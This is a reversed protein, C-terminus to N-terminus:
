NGAGIPITLSVSGAPGVPTWGIRYEQKKMKLKNSFYWTGAAGAGGILLCPPWLAMSRVLRSRYEGAMDTASQYKRYNVVTGAIFYTGATLGAAAAVLSWKRAQMTPGLVRRINFMDAHVSQIEGERVIVSREEERHDALRITVRHTGVPLVASYPTTGSAAGSVIVEAGSPFSSVKLTGSIPTLNLELRKQDGAQLELQRFEARYGSKRVILSHSGPALGGKEGQFSLEGNLPTAKRGDMTIEADPPNIRVQLEAWGPLFARSVRERVEFALIDKPEPALVGLDSAKFGPAMVTIWQKQPPVLLRYFGAASEHRVAYVGDMSGTFTLDPLASYVIIMAANPYQGSAQVMNEKNSVPVNRVDFERLSSQSWASHVMILVVAVAWHRVM